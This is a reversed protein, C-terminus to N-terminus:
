RSFAADPECQDKGGVIVGRERTVHALRDLADLTDGVHPHVHLVGGLQAAGRTAAGVGTEYGFRPLTIATLEPLPPTPFDVTVTFRATASACVPLRTPIMSASM